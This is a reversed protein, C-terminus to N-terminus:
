SEDGIEDDIELSIGTLEDSVMEAWERTNRDFLSFNESEEDRAEACATLFSIFSRLGELATTQGVAPGHLENDRYIVEGNSDYILCLFTQRDGYEDGYMGDQRIFIHGQEGADIGAIACEDTYLVSPTVMVKHGDYNLM